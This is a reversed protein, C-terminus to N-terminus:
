TSGRGPEAAQEMMPPWPSRGARRRQSVAQRPQITLAAAPGHTGALLGLRRRRAAGAVRSRGRRLFATGTHSSAQCRDRAPEPSPPPAAGPQPICCSSTASDASAGRSRCRRPSPCHSSAPSACAASLTPSDHRGSRVLRTAPLRWTPRQSRSRQSNTARPRTCPSYPRATLGDATPSHSSRARRRHPRLAPTVVAGRRHPTTDPGVPPPAPPSGRVPATAEGPAPRLRVRARASAPLQAEDDDRQLRRFAETSALDTRRDHRRPEGIRGLYYSAM